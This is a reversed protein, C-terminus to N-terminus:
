KEKSNRELDHNGPLLIFDSKKLLEHNNNKINDKIYNLFALAKEQSDEFNVNGSDFIDGTVVVCDIRQHNDEDLAELITTGIREPDNNYGNGIHIGSLHLLELKKM